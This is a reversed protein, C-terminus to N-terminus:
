KAPVLRKLEEFWHQVIVIERAGLPDAGRVMVFRGDPLIDYGPGSNGSGAYEEIAGTPGAVRNAFLPVPKGLRLSAGDPTVSVVMMSPAGADMGSFYLEKGDRRWVPGGGGGVSVTLREGQPYGQIYVEQQGSQDSSYALWRGNPSFRPSYESAASALLPRTTPTEGMTVVHIDHARGTQVTYALETGDPSWAMNRIATVGPPAAVLLRERGDLNKLFIGSADKRRSAIALSRGDPHWELGQDFDDQTLRTTSGRAQDYVHVETQQGRVQRFAVSRGDPSVRPFSFIQPSPGLPQSAGARDVLVLATATDADPVYALTGSRSVVLEALPFGTTTLSDRRVADVLPVAPGTVTLQELDFPAILTAEGRQFVLHGSSLAVPAYANEVVTRREGSGLTVADIRSAGADGTPQVWYLVARGSPVLSPHSHSREGKAGLTTLDRAEGGEASVQRLSSSPTGFIIRNDEAWVGFGWQSGNIKALLTIPNGGALSVKKLEGLDTFFGVWRGDPSFFPQTGRETGPLDRVDLTELSRLQLQTRRAAVSGSVYVLQTGNPSLALSRTPAGPFIM